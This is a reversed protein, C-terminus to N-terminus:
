FKAYKKNWIQRLHKMLADHSKVFGSEIAYAIRKELDALEKLEKEDANQRLEEEHKNFVIWNLARAVEKFDYGKLSSGASSLAKYSDGADHRNAILEDYVFKLVDYKFSPNIWMAFDIFLLPHMWTGGYRGKSKLYASNERNLNERKKLTEIFEKTSKNDFFKKIEKKTRNKENWQNLLDTANFMSDKTRQHVEFEGMPRIMIMNTKMVVSKVYYAKKSTNM